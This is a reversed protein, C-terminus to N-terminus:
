NMENLTDALVQDTPDIRIFGVRPYEYDLIMYVAFGLVAVLSITSIWDRPEYVSMSHGVLATSAIVTLGLMFFVPTPLHTTLAVTRVMALDLMENLSSLVLTKDPPGSNRLATTAEQWIKAQLVSSRDLAARVAVVDPIEKYVALRSRVYMRFDERIEPQTELPLLDLRLYTTGIANAEDVALKRRNDFRSAAGSFTFGLLLAMLGFISGEVATHVGRFQGGDRSRRHKGIRHGAEMSLLIVALIGCFVFTPLM